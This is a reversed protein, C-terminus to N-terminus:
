GLQRQLFADAAQVLREKAFGETRRGETEAGAPFLELHDSMSCSEPKLGLFINPPPIHPEEPRLEPLVAPCKAAAAARAFRLVGIARLLERPNCLSRRQAQPHPFLM